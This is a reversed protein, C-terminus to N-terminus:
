PSVQQLVAVPPANNEHPISSMVDAFAAAWTEIMKSDAGRLTILGLDRRNANKTMM